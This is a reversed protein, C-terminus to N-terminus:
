RVLGTPLAVPPPSTTERGGPRDIATPPPTPASSYEKHNSFAFGEIGGEAVTSTMKLIVAEGCDKACPTDEGGYNMYDYICYDELPGQTTM